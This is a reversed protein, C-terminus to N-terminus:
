LFNEYDFDLFYHNYNFEVGNVKKVAVRFGNYCKNEMLILEIASQMGQALGLHHDASYNFHSPLRPCNANKRAAIEYNFIMSEIMRAVVKKNAKSLKM